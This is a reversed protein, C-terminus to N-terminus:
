GKFVKILSVAIMAVSFGFKLVVSSLFGLFTGLGAKLAPKLNKKEIALEFILAGVFPGIIVGIINAFFLGVLAGLVAGVIGWRGAGMRKAGFPVLINDILSVFLTILFFITLLSLSISQFKDIFAIIIISFYVLWVGPLNALTMIIGAIALIAGIVGLITALIISM